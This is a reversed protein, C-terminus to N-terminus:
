DLVTVVTPSHASHIQFIAKQLFVRTGVFIAQKDGYEIKAERNLDGKVFNDFDIVYTSAEVIRREHTNIELINWISQVMIFRACRIYNIMYDKTHLLAM